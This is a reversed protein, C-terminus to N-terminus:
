PNPSEPKVDTKSITETDGSGGTLVSAERGLWQRMAQHLGVAACGLGAGYLALQAGPFHAAQIAATREGVFPFLIAGVVPLLIPILWNPIKPIRKVAFGVFNLVLVLMVAPSASLLGAVQKSLWEM